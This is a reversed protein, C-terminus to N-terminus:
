GVCEVLVRALVGGAGERRRGVEETPRREMLAGIDRDAYESDFVDRPRSARPPKVVLCAITWSRGVWSACPRFLFLALWSSVAQLPARQSDPRM